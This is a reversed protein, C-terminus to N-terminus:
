GPRFRLPQMYPYTDKIHHQPQSHGDHAHSNDTEQLSRELGRTPDTPSYSTTNTTPKKRQIRRTVPQVPQPEQAPPALMTPWLESTRPPQDEWRGARGNNWLRRQGYEQIWHYTAPKEHIALHLNHKQARAIHPGMQEPTMHHYHESQYIPGKRQSHWQFSYSGGPNPRHQPTTAMAAPQQYPEPEPQTPWIQTDTQTNSNYDAATDDHTIEQETLVVDNNDDHRHLTPTEMRPQIRPQTTMPHRLQSHSTVYTDGDADITTSTVTDVFLRLKNNVSIPTTIQM